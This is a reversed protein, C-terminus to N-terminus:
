RYENFWTGCENKCVEGVARVLVLDCRSFLLPTLALVSYINEERALTNVCENQYCNREM